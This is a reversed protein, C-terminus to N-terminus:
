VRFFDDLLHLFGLYKAMKQSNGRKLVNSSDFHVIITNWLISYKIWITVKRVINKFNNCRLEKLSHVSKFNPSIDFFQWLLPLFQPYNLIKGIESKKPGFDSKTHLKMKTWLQWNKLYCLLKKKWHFTLGQIQCQCKGFNM